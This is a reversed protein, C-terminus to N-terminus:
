NQGCRGMHKLTLRPVRQAVWELICLSNYTRHDSGCVPDPYWFSECSNQECNGYYLVMLNPNKAAACDFACMNAYTIFNSACIPQLSYDCLCTNLKQLIDFDIIESNVGFISCLIVILLSNM